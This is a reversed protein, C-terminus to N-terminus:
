REGRLSASVMAAPRWQSLSRIATSRLSPQDNDPPNPPQHLRKKKEGGGLSSRDCALSTSPEFGDHHQPAFESTIKSLFPQIACGSGGRPERICRGYGIQAASGHREFSAKAGLLTVNRHVKQRANLSSKYQIEVFRRIDLPQWRGLRVSNKSKEFVAVRWVFEYRHQAAPAQLDHGREAHEGLFSGLLTEFQAESDKYGVTNVNAINSSTVSLAASQADLGAVGTQLAGFLSM